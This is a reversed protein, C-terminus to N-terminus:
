DLKGLFKVLENTFVEPKEVCPLHGAGKIIEFKSNKIMNATDKVINVPTSGDEDGVILLTPISISKAQNRLDCDAIAKCCGLYGLTSTRTLM